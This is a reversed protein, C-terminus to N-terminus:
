KERGELLAPLPEAYFSVEGPKWETGAPMEGTEQIRKKCETKKVEEKTRVCEPAHEKLWKVAEAEDTVVLSAPAQRFGVTGSLLKVSKRSGARALELDAWPRLLFVMSEKTAHHHKCIEALRADIREKMGAAMKTFREIEADARGIKSLAWEAKSLSDIKFPVTDKDVTGLDDDFM